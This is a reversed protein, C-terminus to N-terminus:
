IYDCKVVEYNDNNHLLQFPKTCGYVMKNITLSQCLSQNLHPNVQGFGDKYIAHRFIRCNMEKKMVMILDLCHPCPFVLYDDQEIM